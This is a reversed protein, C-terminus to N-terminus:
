GVFIPQQAQASQLDIGGHYVDQGGYIMAVDDNHSISSHYRHSDTLSKSLSQPDISAATGAFANSAILLTSILLLVLTRM